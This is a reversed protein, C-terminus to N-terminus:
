LALAINIFETNLVLMAPAQEAVSPLPSPSWHLSLCVHTLNLKREVSQSFGQLM